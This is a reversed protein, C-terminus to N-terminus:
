TNNTSCTPQVTLGLDEIIQKVLSIMEGGKTPYKTQLHKNLAELIESSIYFDGSEAIYKKVIPLSVNIIIRGLGKNFKTYLSEIVSELDTTNEDKAIDSILKDLIGSVGRVQSNVDKCFVSPDQNVLASLTEIFKVFEDKYKTVLEIYRINAKREDAENLYPIIEGSKSEVLQNFRKQIEHLNEM